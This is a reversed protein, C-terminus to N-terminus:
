ARVVVLSSILLTFGISDVSRVTMLGGSQTESNLIRKDVIQKIDRKLRQGFHEFM